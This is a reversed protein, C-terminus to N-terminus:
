NWTDVLCMLKMKRWPSPPYRFNIKLLSSSLIPLIIVSSLLVFLDICLLRDKIGMLMFRFCMDSDSSAILWFQWFSPSTYLYLNWNFYLYLLFVDDVLTLLFYFIIHNMSLNSITTPLIFIFIPLLKLQFILWLTKSTPITPKQTLFLIGQTLWPFM